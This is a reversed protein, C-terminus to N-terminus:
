KKAKSSPPGPSRGEAYGAAVYHEYASRLKGTKVALAVDAYTKLYYDEEVIPRSPPRGELFGHIYYHDAASEYAGEKLDDGLGPIQAVYWKEDVEVAALAIRLLKRLDEMSLRLTVADSLERGDGKITLSPLHRKVDVMSLIAIGRDEKIQLSPLLMKVSPPFSV